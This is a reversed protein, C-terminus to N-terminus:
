QKEPKSLDIMVDYYEFKKKWKYHLKKAKFMKNNEYYERKCIDKYKKIKYIKNNFSFRFEKISNNMKSIYEKNRKDQERFFSKNLQRCRFDFWRCHHLIYDVNKIQNDFLPIKGINITDLNDPLNKLYMLRCGMFSIKIEGTIQEKKIKLIFNGNIDCSAGEIKNFKEISINAFAVPTSDSYNYVSGVITINQSFSITSFFIFIILTNQKM